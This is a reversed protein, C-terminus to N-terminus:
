KDNVKILKIRLVGDDFSGCGCQSQIHDQPTEERVQIFEVNGYADLAVRRQFNRQRRTGSIYLFRDHFNVVFQDKAIGPLEIYLFVGQRNEVIDVSPQWWNLNYYSQNDENSNNINNNDPESDDNSDWWDDSPPCRYITVCKQGSRSSSNSGHGISNPSNTTNNDTYVISPSSSSCIPIIASNSALNSLTEEQQRQQSYVERKSGMLMLKTQKLNKNTDIWRSWRDQNTFLVASIEGKALLKQHIPLVGTRQYVMQQLNAFSINRTIELEISEKGWMLNVKLLDEM